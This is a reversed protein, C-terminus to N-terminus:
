ANLRFRIRDEGRAPRRQGVRVPLIKVLRQPLM